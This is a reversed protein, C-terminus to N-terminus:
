RNERLESIHILYAGTATNAVGTLIHPIGPLTITATVCVAFVAGPTLDPEIERHGCTAASEAFTISIAGDTVNQDALAVEAAWQARPLSESLSSSTEILRGADRAAQAVALTTGQIRIVFILLYIVPIMILVALFVVEVVARGDDDRHEDPASGTLRRAPSWPRGFVKM